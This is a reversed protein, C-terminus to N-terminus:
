IDVNEPSLPPHFLIPNTTFQGVFLSTFGRLFTFVVQKTEVFIQYPINKYHIRSIM